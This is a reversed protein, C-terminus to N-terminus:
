SSLALGAALLVSHIVALLAMRPTVPNLATRERQTRVTRVISFALPASASPLLIWADLELVMWYVWPALYAFAVLLTIENRNWGPGHVVAGTRWGKMADFEHDRIDDILMVATVLAGAPLGVFYVPTPLSAMLLWPSAAANLAAVQIYYTGAVAVVGFMLFFIPDALGRRVYAWPACNYSLSVAIGLAGFALVPPGGIRFLWPATLLALGLCGAVAGRLTTLRLTGDRLAQTLEPHEPVDPHKRLLEHNDTFVGAVHIVWSGLFGILAPIPAFVRDHLALGVGVLVPALATPLSHTPYLLLDIWIARTSPARVVERALSPM